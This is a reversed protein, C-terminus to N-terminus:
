KILIMKKVDTFNKTELKYIYTGSAFNTADWTAEYRGAQMDKNVLTSVLKGLIDYVSIKVYTNSPIDYKITTAPNFPNPYNNYLKFVTPLENETNVGTLYDMRICGAPSNVLTDWGASYSLLNLSDYVVAPGSGSTRLVPTICSTSDLRNFRLRGITYTGPAFTFCPSSPNRVINLSITSGGLISTTTMLGYNANNHLNSNAENVTADPHITVGASNPSTTWNVRINCSGVRWSQGTPVTAKLQISWINGAEITPNSCFFRVKVQSNVAATVMFLLFLSLIIKKM